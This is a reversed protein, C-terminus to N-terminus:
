PVTGTNSVFRFYNTTLLGKGQTQIMLTELRALIQAFYDHLSIPSKRALSSLLLRLEGLKFLCDEPRKTPERVLLSALGALPDLVQMKLEKERAAVDEIKLVTTLRTEFTSEICSFLSLYRQMAIVCNAERDVEIPSTPPPVPPLGGFKPLSEPDEEGGEYDPNLYFSLWDWSSLHMLAEREAVLEGSYQFPFWFSKKADSRPKFEITRGGLLVNRFEDLLFIQSRGDVFILKLNAWHVDYDVLRSIDSGKIRFGLRDDGEFPELVIYDVFDPFLSDYEESEEDAKPPKDPPLPPLENFRNGQSVSLASLVGNRLTTANEIRWVLGFERNVGLWAKVSFNASGIYALGIGGPSSLILIKAHLSRSIVLDKTKGAAQREIRQRENETVSEPILRLMAGKRKAAPGFHIQSLNNFASEDTVIEIDSLSTFREILKAAINNGHPAEDFFPSVVFLRNPGQDPFWSDWQAVLADIGKEKGYGSALFHSTSEAPNQWGSTRKKITVLAASLASASSEHAETLYHRTLFDIWEFLLHTGPSDASRWCWSEIVERNRFLGSFTLNFSGVALRITKRTVIFYAKSHHCSFGATKCPHLELFQPLRGFPKTKRADFFVVPRIRSLLKLGSKGIEKDEELSRLVALNLLQQEDFEYTLVIFHEIPDDDLLTLVESFLDSFNFFEDKAGRGTDEDMLRGGRLTAM